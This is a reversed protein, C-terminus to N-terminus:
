SHLVLGSPRTKRFAVFALGLLGTGLLLLSTPEPTAVVADIGLTTHVTGDVDTSTLTWDVLTSAYGTETMWGTGDLNLFKKTDEDVTLSSITLTVGDGTAFMEDGLDGSFKFPNKPFTVNDGIVADLSGSTSPNGAVTANGKKTDFTISTSNWTDASGTIGISGSISTASVCPTIALATAAALLALLFKNMM